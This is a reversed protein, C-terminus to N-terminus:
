PMFLQRKMSIVLAGSGHLLMRGSKEACPHSSSAEWPVCGGLMADLPRTSDHPACTSSIVWHPKVTCIRSSKLKHSAVDVMVLSM